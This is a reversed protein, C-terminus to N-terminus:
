YIGKIAEITTKAHTKLFYQQGFINLAKKKLVMEKTEKYPNPMQDKINFYLNYFNKDKTIRDSITQTSFKDQERILKLIKDTQIVKHLKKIKETRPASLYNKRVISKIDKAVNEFFISSMLDCYTPYLKEETAQKKLTNYFYNKLDQAIQLINPNKEMFIKSKTKEVLEKITRKIIERRLPFNVEMFNDVCDSGIRINKTADNKHVLDFSYDLASGCLECHRCDVHVKLSVDYDAPETGLVLFSTIKAKAKKNSM